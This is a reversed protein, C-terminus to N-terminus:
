QKIELGFECFLEAPIAVLATDGISLAQVEAPVVPEQRNLAALLTLERAYYREGNWPGETALLAKAAALDEAPVPRPKLGLRTHARAIPLGTAPELRVLTRIGEAGLTFGIRRAWQEGFESERDIRNAVQTIDGCAGPLFLTTAAHGMVGRVAQDLYFPFD